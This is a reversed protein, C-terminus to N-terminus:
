QKGIGKRSSMYVDAIFFIVFHAYIYTSFM